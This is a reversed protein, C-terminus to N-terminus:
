MMPRLIQIGAAERATTLWQVFLLMEEGQLLGQEIMPLQLALMDAEPTHRASVHVAFGGMPGPAFEGVVGVPADMAAAAVQRQEPSLDENIVTLGEFEEVKAKAGAAAEAFSKGDAMASRIAALTEEAKERVAQDRKIGILEARLDARAEELTLPRAEEIGAVEIVAYGENGLEVIEFNGPGSPLRFAVAAAAPVVEGDLDVLAGGTAGDPAFFPTTQLEVGRAAAVQELTQGEEGLIQAFDGTATALRQLAAVRERGGLDREEPTLVFAAYRVSRREPARLSAQRAAFAQELEEDGVEIGGSLDTADFRLVQVDAPSLREVAPAVAGPQLVAPSQVLSRVGELRLTDRIVAELQRETFGRPALQDQLFSAYKVPDFHGDTQLVPLSKIRELVVANGPEVGLEASEHQLVMLNWIFNEAAQDETQAGGSLDRVLQFQGLALALQYNRLAREVDVVMVDRGYIKAVINTGVRELDTTNYLWAFAIVTLVAILTMLWRQHKRITTFM